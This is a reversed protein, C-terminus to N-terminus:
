MMQGCVGGRWGECLQPREQLRGGPTEKKPVRALGWADREHDCMSGVRDTEYDRM